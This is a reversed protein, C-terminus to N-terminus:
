FYGAERQHRVALIATSQGDYHYLVLYGSDGFAVLWERFVPDM